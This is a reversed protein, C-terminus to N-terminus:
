EKFSLRLSGKVTSEKTFEEFLEPYAEKFAKQDFSTKLHDFTWTATFVDNDLKKVGNEDMAKALANKIEDNEIKLAKMKLDNRKAKKMLKMVEAPLAPYGNKETITIEYSM